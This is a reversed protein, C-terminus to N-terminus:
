RGVQAGAPRANEHGARPWTRVRVGVFGSFRGGWFVVFFWVPNKRRLSKSRHGFVRIDVVGTSRTKVVFPTTAM